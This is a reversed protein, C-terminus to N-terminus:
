EAKRKWTGVMDPWRVLFQDPEVRALAADMEDLTAVNVHNGALSAKRLSALVGRVMGGGGDNSQIHSWVDCGDPVGVGAQRLLTPMRTGIEVDKGLARFLDCMLSIARETVPHEPLTRCATMDYDMVLLIGGPKVWHWLRRLTETPVPTHIVLLRAVVLDYRHSEIPTTASFDGAFFDFVDPGTSRLHALAEAGLVADSDLGVVRGSPGVVDAMLRMVAGTGCGVDLVQMGASLGVRTLASRTAPTWVNAQAALRQYESSTRALM